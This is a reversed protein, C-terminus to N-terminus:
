TLDSIISLIELPDNKEYRLTNSDGSIVSECLMEAYQDSIAPTSVIPMYEIKGTGPTYIMVLVTTSKSTSYYGIVLVQNKSKSLGVWSSNLWFSTYVDSSADSLHPITDVSLSITLMARMKASSYWESASLKTGSTVTANITSSSAAFSSSVALTLALLLAVSLLLKQKM